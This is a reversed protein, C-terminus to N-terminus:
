RAGGMCGRVIAAALATHHVARQARRRLDAMALKQLRTSFPWLNNSAITERMRHCIRIDQGAWGLLFAVYNWSIM